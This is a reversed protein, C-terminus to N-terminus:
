STRRRRVRLPQQDDLVVLDLPLADDLQQQVVVDLDRRDAGTGLREVHEAVSATRSSRRSRRSGSMLPKSSSSRICAVGDSARCQRDHHEGALLQGGVLLRPQSRHRLADHQLVHLRRLPQEVLRRQEEMADDGVQRFGLPLHELPQVARVFHQAPRM